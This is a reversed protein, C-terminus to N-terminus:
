KLLWDFDDDQGDQNNNNGGGIFIGGGGTPVDPIDSNPKPAFDREYGVSSSSSVSFADLM